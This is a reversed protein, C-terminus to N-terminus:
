SGYLKRALNLREETNGKFLSSNIGRKWRRTLWTVRSFTVQSREVSDKVPHFGISEWGDPEYTKEVEAVKSDDCEVVMTERICAVKKRIVTRM